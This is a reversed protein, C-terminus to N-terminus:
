RGSGLSMSGGSRKLYSWRGGGTWARDEGTPKEGANSYGAEGSPGDKVESSPWILIGFDASYPFSIAQLASEYRTAMKHIQVADSVCAVGHGETLRMCAM